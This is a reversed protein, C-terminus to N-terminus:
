WGLDSRLREVMDHREYRKFIITLVELSDRKEERSLDNIFELLIKAILSWSQNAGHFTLRNILNEIDELTQSNLSQPDNMFSYALAMGPDELVERRFNAILRFQDEQEREHELRKLRSKELELASALSDPPIDMRGRGWIHRVGGQALDKEVGLSSNIKDEVSQFDKLSEDKCFKQARDRVFNRVVAEPNYHRQAGRSPRWLARFEM